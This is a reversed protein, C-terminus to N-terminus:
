LSAEMAPCLHGAHNTTTTVTQGLQKLTSPKLRSFSDQPVSLSRNNNNAAKEPPVAFIHVLTRGATSCYAPLIPRVPRKHAPVSSSDRGEAASPKSSTKLLKKQQRISSGELPQALTPKRGPDANFKFIEKARIKTQKESIVILRRPLLLNQRAAEQRATLRRHISHQTKRKQNRQLLYGNEVWTTDVNLVSRRSTVLLM